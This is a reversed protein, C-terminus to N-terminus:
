SRAGLEPLYRALAAQVESETEGMTVNAYVSWHETHEVTAGPLLQVLNGLTELELIADNTFTEANCGFDAHPGPLPRHEKVFLANGLVYAMYGRENYFGVKQAEKRTPDQRLFFFRDGWTWRPDNMRTFSWLVLPRAPTLAEPHPRFVPQPFIARGGRAMVTLAWPAIEIPTTGRHTIRHVLTVRSTDEALTVEMSKELGTHSEVAQVLRVRTGDTVVSVPSNDPYYSRPFEEPAYWLRHGGRIHWTGFPTSESQDQPSVYGLVNAGGKPAYSMIRPGYETALILEAHANALLLNKSYGAYPVNTTLTTSM